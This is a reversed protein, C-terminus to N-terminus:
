IKIKFIQSEEGIPESHCCLPILVLKQLNTNQSEEGIPESHRLLFFIAEMTMALIQLAFRLLQREVTM